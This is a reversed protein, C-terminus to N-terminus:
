CPVGAQYQSAEDEAIKNQLGSLRKLEAENAELKGSLEELQVSDNFQEVSMRSCGKSGSFQVRGAADAKKFAVYAEVDGGFKAQLDPSAAFEGRLKEEIEKKTEM